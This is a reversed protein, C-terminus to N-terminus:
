YKLEEIGDPLEVEIKKEDLNVNVIFDDVAPVPLMKGDACEIEYIDQAKGTMVDKLKGIIYGNESSIVSMGILDKIYYNDKPLDAKDDAYRYVEKKYLAEAAERNNVGELKIIPIRKKYRIKEIPYEHGDIIFYDFAKLLDPSDAFHYIKIEGRLGVQGNVTGIHLKERNNDTM